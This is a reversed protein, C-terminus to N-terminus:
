QPCFLFTLILVDKVSSLSCKTPTREREREREPSGGVKLLKQKCVPYNLYCYLSM